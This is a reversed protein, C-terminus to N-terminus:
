SPGESPLLTGASTIPETQILGDQILTPGIWHSTDKLLTCVCPSWQTCIFASVPTLRRCAWSAQIVALQWFSSSGFFARGPSKRPPM